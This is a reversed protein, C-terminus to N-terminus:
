AHPPTAEASLRKAEANPQFSAANLQNPHASLSPFERTPCFSEANLSRAEDAGYSPYLAAFGM